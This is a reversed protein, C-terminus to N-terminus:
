RTPTTNTTRRPQEGANAKGSGPVAVGTVHSLLGIQSRVKSKTFRRSVNSGSRNAAIAVFAHLEYGNLQAAIGKSPLIVFLGNETCQISGSMLVHVEVSNHCRYSPM